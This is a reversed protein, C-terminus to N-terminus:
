IVVTDPLNGEDSKKSEDDWVLPESAMTPAMKEDTDNFLRALKEKREATLVEQSIYATDPNTSM